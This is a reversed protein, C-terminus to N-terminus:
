SLKHAFFAVGLVLFFTTADSAAHRSWRLRNPLVDDEKSHNDKKPDGDEKKNTKNSSM